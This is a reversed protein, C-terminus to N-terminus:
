IKSILCKDTADNAFIKEWEVPHIKMKNIAEKAPCFSILKIKDWKNIKVKVAIAKPSQGLVINSCEIDSFTKGKNEELLKTTNHRINLHKVGKSNIKTHSTFTHELKRSKCAAM